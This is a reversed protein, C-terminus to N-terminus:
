AGRNRLFSAMSTDESDHTTAADGQVSPEDSESVYESLEQLDEDSLGTTAYGSASDPANARTFEERELESHLNNLHDVLSTVFDSTASEEIDHALAVKEQLLESMLDSSAVRQNSPRGMSAVLSALKEAKSPSVVRNTDPGMTNAANRLAAALKEHDNETNVATNSPLRNDFKKSNLFQEFVSSM